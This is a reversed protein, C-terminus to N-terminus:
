AAVNRMARPASSTNVGTAAASVGETVGNSKPVSPAFPHYVVAAVMLQTM